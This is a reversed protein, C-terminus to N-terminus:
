KINDCHLNVKDAAGDYRLPQFESGSYDEQFTIKRYACDGSGTKFAIAAICYRHLIAGSIEHRRIEWDCTIAVKLVETGDIFGTKWDNSNKLAVAMKAERVPDSVVAKPFGASGAAAHSAAENLQQSLATYHSFDNGTITIEGTAVPTYYCNVVIKLKHNGPSLNGIAEAFAVPGEYKKGFSKYIIETGGYASTKSPDPVLDIVLFKNEKMTGKLYMNAFTLQNDMPQQYSYLPPVTEYLFIEVQLTADGPQNQYLNNVVDPLYAVAYLHDGAVFEQQIGIPSAPNLPSSSFLIEGANQASINEMFSFFILILITKVTTLKM